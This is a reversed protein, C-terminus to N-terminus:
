QVFKVCVPSPAEIPEGIANVVRGVLEPPIAYDSEKRFAIELSVRAIM